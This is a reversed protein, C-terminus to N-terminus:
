HDGPLIEEKQKVLQDNVTAPEKKDAGADIAFDKKLQEQLVKNDDVVPDNNFMSKYEEVIKGKELKGASFRTTEDRDHFGNMLKNEEYRRTRDDFTDAKALFDRMEIMKKTNERFVVKMAKTVGEPLNDKLVKCAEYQKQFEEANLSPRFRIEFLAQELPRANAAEILKGNDAEIKKRESEAKAMARELDAAKKEEAKRDAEAKAAERANQRKTRETEVANDVRAEWVAYQEELKERQEPDAMAYSQTGYQVAEAPAEEPFGVARLAANAAALYNNMAKTESRFILKWFFGHRALREEVLKKTIYTKHINARDEGTATSYNLGSKASEGLANAEGVFREDRIGYAKFVEFGRGEKYSYSNVEEKVLDVFESGKFAFYPMPKYAFRQKQAEERAIAEFLHICGEVFHVSDSMKEVTEKLKRDGPKAKSRLMMQQRYAEYARTEPFLYNKIRTRISENARAPKNGSNRIINGVGEALYRDKLEYGNKKNFERLEDVYPM